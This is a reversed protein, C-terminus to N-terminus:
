DIKKVPVCIDVIFIGNHPEENYFEYCPKNEPQYGSKPFWEGLLWDWAKQFQNEKITFSAVVYKGKTLVMKGIKGSVETNEHATICVSTRLKSKEVVKVDDHYVIATKFQHKLIGRPGAWAFLESFLREFLKTNEQYPGVHRLYVVPIRPLERIEILNNEKM